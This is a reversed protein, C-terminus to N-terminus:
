GPIDIRQGVRLGTYGIVIYDEYNEAGTVTIGALEYNRPVGNFIVTPNYITDTAAQASATLASVLLSLFLLIKYRM